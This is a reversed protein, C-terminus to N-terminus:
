MGQSAYWRACAHVVSREARVTNDEDVALIITKGDRSCASRLPNEAQFIKDVKWGWSSAGESGIDAKVKIINLDGDPGCSLLQHPAAADQLTCFFM